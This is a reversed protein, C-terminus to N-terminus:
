RSHGEGLAPAAVLSGVGICVAAGVAAKFMALVEVDPMM